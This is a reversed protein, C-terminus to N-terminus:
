TIEGGLTLLLIQIVWPRDATLRMIGKKVEKGIMCATRVTYFGKEGGGCQLEYKAQLSSEFGGM